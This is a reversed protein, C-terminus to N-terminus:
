APPAAQNVSSVGFRNSRIAPLDDRFDIPMIRIRDLGRYFCCPLLTGFGRQDATLRLDTETRGVFLAFLLAM